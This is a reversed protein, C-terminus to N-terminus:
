RRRRACVALTGLDVATDLAAPDAEAQVKALIERLRNAAAHGAFHRLEAPLDDAYSAVLLIM